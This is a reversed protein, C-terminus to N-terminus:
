ALRLNGKRNATSVLYVPQSSRLAKESYQRKSPVLFFLLKDKRCSNGELFESLFRKFPTRTLGSLAFPSFRFDGQGRQSFIAELASDHSLVIAADAQSM